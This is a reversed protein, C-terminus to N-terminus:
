RHHATHQIRITSQRLAHCSGKDELIQLLEADKRLGPADQGMVQQGESFGLFFRHLLDLAHPDSAEIPLLHFLDSQSFSSINSSQRQPPRVNWYPQLFSQAAYSASSPAQTTQNAGTFYNQEQRTDQISAPTSRRSSTAIVQESYITIRGGVDCSGAPERRTRCNNCIQHDHNAYARTIDTHWWVRDQM